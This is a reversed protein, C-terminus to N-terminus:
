FCESNSRCSECTHSGWNYNKGLILLTKLNKVSILTLVCLNSLTGKEATYTIDKVNKFDVYM